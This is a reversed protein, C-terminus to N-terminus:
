SNKRFPHNAPYERTKTKRSEIAGLLTDLGVLLVVSIIFLLIVAWRGDIRLVAFQVQVERVEFFITGLVMHVRLGVERPVRPM